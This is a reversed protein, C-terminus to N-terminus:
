AQRWWETGAWSRWVGLIIRYLGLILFVTTLLTVALAAAFGWNLYTSIQDEILMAIMRDQRGGLLAPTVFFGLAIIFVLINGAVVGPLSLPFFVRWFARLPGAGLNQAARILTFDIRRMVAYLSLIMFPLLIHVMGIYVGFTNYILQLPRDILGAWILLENVVGRRGLLAMWAYTRVLLSTWFPLIVLTLLLAARGPKATALLYAVPYALAFTTLTVGFSIKLTTWLIRLYAPVTFVKQYHTGTLAPDFLSLPLFGGLPYVFVLLLLVVAPLFLLDVRARHLSLWGM